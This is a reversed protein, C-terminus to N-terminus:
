KGDHFLRSEFADHRLCRGSSESRADGRFPHLDFGLPPDLRISPSPGRPPSPYPDPRTAVTVCHHALGPVACSCCNRAVCTLSEIRSQQEERSSPHRELDQDTDPLHTTKLRILDHCLSIALQSSVQGAGQTEPPDSSETLRSWNLDLTLDLGSELFFWPMPVELARSLEYLRGRTIPNDGSEYKILQEWSIGLKSALDQQSMGLEVRRQKIRQDVHQDITNAKRMASFRKRPEAKDPDM